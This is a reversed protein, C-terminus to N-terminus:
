AEGLLHFEAELEMNAKPGAMVEGFVSSHYINPSGDSNFPVSGNMVGVFNVVYGPGRLLFGCWSTPPHDDKLQMTVSYPTFAGRQRAPKFEAYPRGEIQVPSLEHGYHMVLGIKRVWETNTMHNFAMGDQLQGKYFGGDVLINYRTTLFWINKQLPMALAGGNLRNPQGVWQAPATLNSGLWAHSESGNWQHARWFDVDSTNCFGGWYTDSLNRMWLTLDPILDQKRLVDKVRKPMHSESFLALVDETLNGSSKRKLRALDRERARHADLVSQSDQQLQLASQLLFVSDVREFNASSSWTDV